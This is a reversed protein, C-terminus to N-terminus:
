NVRDRAGLVWRNYLKCIFSFSDLKPSSQSDIWWKKKSDWGDKNLIKNIDM